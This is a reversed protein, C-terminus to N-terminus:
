TLLFLSLLAALASLFEVLRRHLALALVTGFVTLSIVLVALLVAVTIPSHPLRCLKCRDSM